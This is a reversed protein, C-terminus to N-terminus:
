EEEWMWLGIVILALGIFIWGYFMVYAETNYMYWFPLIEVVRRDDWIYPACMLDLQWLGVLLLAIGFILLGIQSTNRKILPILKM